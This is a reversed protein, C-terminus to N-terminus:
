AEASGVCRRSDPCRLMPTAEQGLPCEVAASVSASQATSRRRGPPAHRRGHDPDENAATAPAPRSIRGLVHGAVDDPAVQQRGHPNGQGHGRQPRGLQAPGRPRRASRALAVSRQGPVLAGPGPEPSAARPEAPRRAATPAPSGSRSPPGTGGARQRGPRPHVAPGLSPEPLPGGRPNGDEVAITRREARRCVTRCVHLHACGPHRRTDRVFAAARAHRQGRRVGARAVRHLRRGRAPAHAHRRLRRPRRASGVPRRGRGAPREAGAGAVRRVARPPGTPGSRRRDDANLEDVTGYAEVRPHLKSVRSM